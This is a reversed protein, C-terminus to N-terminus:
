GTQLHLGAEVSTVFTYLQQWVRSVKGGPVKCIHACSSDKRESTTSEPPNFSGLWVVQRKRGEVRHAITLISHEERIAYQLIEEAWRGGLKFAWRREFWEALTQDIFAQLSM